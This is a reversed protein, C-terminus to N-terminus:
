NAKLSALIAQVDPDSASISHNAPDYSINAQYEIDNVSDTWLLIVKGGLLDDAEFGSWTFDGLTFSDLDTANDYWSSDPTMLDYDVGYYSVNITPNFLLDAENEANKGLQVGDPNITNPDEAWIDLTPFAKWGEPVLVSFSGTDYSEGSVSPVDAEGGNQTDGGNDPVSDGNQIDDGNDPTSGGESSGCAHCSVDICGSCGCGSCGGFVVFLLIFLILVLSLVLKLNNTSKFIETFDNLIKKIDFNKM